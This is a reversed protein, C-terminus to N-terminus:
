AVIMGNQDIKLTSETVTVEETEAAIKTIPTIRDEIPPQKPLLGKKEQKEMKTAMKNFSDSDLLYSDVMSAVYEKKLADHEFDPYDKFIAAMMVEKQNQDIKKAPPIKTKTKTM